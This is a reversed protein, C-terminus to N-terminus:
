RRAVTQNCRQLPSRFDLFVLNPARESPPPPRGTRGGPRPSDNRTRGATPIGYIYIFLHFSIVPGQRRTETRRAFRPPRGYYPNRIFAANIAASSRESPLTCPLSRKTCWCCWRARERAIRGDPRRWQGNAEWVTLGDPSRPTVQDRLFGQWQSESIIGSPHSLGFYLTTRMQNSRQGGCIQETRAPAPAQARSPPQPVFTSVSLMPRCDFAYAPKEEATCRISRGPPWGPKARAQGKSRFECAWHNWVGAGPQASQGV